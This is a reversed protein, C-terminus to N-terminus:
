TPSARAASPDDAPRFLKSVVIPACLFFAAMSWPLLQLVCLATGTLFFAILNPLRWPRISRAVWVFAVPVLGLLPTMVAFPMLHDAIPLKQIRAIEELARETERDVDSKLRVEGVRPRSEAGGQAPSVTQVGVVSNFAFATLVLAMCMALGKAAAVVLERIM